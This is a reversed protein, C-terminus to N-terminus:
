LFSRLLVWVAVVFFSLCCCSIWCPCHFFLLLLVVFFVIVCFCSGCYRLCSSVYYTCFLVFCHHINIVVISYFLWLFPFLLITIFTPVNIISVLIAETFWTRIVIRVFETTLILCFAIEPVTKLTWDGRRWQRWFVEGIIKERHLTQHTLKTLSHLLSMKWFVM